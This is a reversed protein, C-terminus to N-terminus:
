RMLVENEDAEPITKLLYERMMKLKLIKKEEYIKNEDQENDTEVSFIEFLSLLGKKLSKFTRQMRKEINKKLEGFIAVLKDSIDVLVKQIQNMIQKTNNPLNEIMKIIPALVKQSINLLTKAVPKPLKAQLTAIILDAKIVIEKINKQFNIVANRYAQLSKENNQQMAEKALMRQWVAYCKAYSWENKKASISDTTKTGGGGMGSCVPCAGSPLGHPCCGPKINSNISQVSM